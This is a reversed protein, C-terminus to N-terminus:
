GVFRACDSLNPILIKTGPPVQPSWGVDSAAAIIWGLRGDGYIRGAMVDLRESEELITEDYRINGNKINERIATIAFSTGYYFRFGIVPARAYRRITM